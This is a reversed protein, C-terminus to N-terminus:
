AKGAKWDQEATHKETNATSLALFRVGAASLSLQAGSDGSSYVVQSKLFKAVVSQHRM